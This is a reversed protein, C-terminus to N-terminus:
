FQRNVEYIMWSRESNSIIIIIFNTDESNSCFKTLAVVTTLMLGLDPVSSKM